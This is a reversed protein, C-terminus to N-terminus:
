LVILKINKKFTHDSLTLIYQGKPLENRLSLQYKGAGTQISFEEEHVLQGYLNILKTKISKGKFNELSFNIDKQTPNPFAKANVVILENFDVSTLMPKAIDGNKDVQTLRYYNAGNFPNIDFTVYNKVTTSNEKSSSQKDLYSFVGDAGAKEILFYDSNTENATSWEIKVRNNDKKAAFNILKVPLTVADPVVNSAVSENSMRDLSTVAYYYATGSGPTVVNDTYTVATSPLVAILNASNNYDITPTTSRYVAYRVVKQLEDTTSAPATWALQTKGAVLSPTLNTPEAPAVADIWTMSPIIAPTSYQNDRIYEMTPKTAALTTVTHAARFHATGSVNPTNARLYNLQNKIEDATYQSSSGDNTRYTALGIILHRTFNQRNWYDTVYNFKANGTVQSFAWYVQPALYDILSDEMWKKTDAYQTAYHESGTTTVSPNSGLVTFNKYIGSPSIGFKVWPKLNKISTSLQQILLTVNDRRWDNINSFGRPDSSFNSADQTGLGSYYFYDDFHIGDLDYNSVLESVVDNIHNRVAALAPNFYKLRTIYGTSPNTTAYELLWEPNTKAKHTASYSNILPEDTAARYPNLWAHIEMGREHCANVAFALPDWGPNAGYTGTLRNSWPVIASAYFADAVGRVQFYITNIGVTKLNDLMALLKTQKTATADASAPWDLSLHTTIWAARVERKPNQSFATIQLLFMTALLLIKKM